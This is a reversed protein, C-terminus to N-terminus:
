EKAKMEARQKARQEYIYDMGERFTLGDPIIIEPLKPAAPMEPLWESDDDDNDIVPPNNLSEAIAFVPTSGFIDEASVEQDSFPLGEEEEVGSVQANVADEFWEEGPTVEPAAPPRGKGSMQLHYGYPTATTTSTAGSKYTTTGTPLRPQGLTFESAMDDKLDAYAQGPVYENFDDM